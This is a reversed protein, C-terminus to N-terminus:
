ARVGKYDDMACECSTLIEDEGGLKIYLQRKRCLINYLEGTENPSIKGRKEERLSDYLMDILVELHWRLTHRMENIDEANFTM